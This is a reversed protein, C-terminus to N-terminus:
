KYLIDIEHMNMLGTDLIRFILLKLILNKFIDAKEVFVVFFLLSVRMIAMNNYKIQNVYVM